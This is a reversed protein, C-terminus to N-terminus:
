PEARAAARDERGAVDGLLVVSAPMPGPKSPERTPQTDDHPQARGNRSLEGSASAGSRPEQPPDPRPDIPPQDGVHRRQQGYRAWAGPGRLKDLGLEEAWRTSPPRATATGHIKGKLYLEWGSPEVHTDGPVPLTAQTDLPEVLEVTALVLLEPAGREYRVSRFLTGLVPVSGLGPVGQSRAAVSRDILGAMAFTQGSRMRLTTAARRTLLSPIRFGEVEVAGIDSLDSVEPAVQLRITGDGLVVPLFNLEVGFERFEVTVTPGGLGGGQVVPIPFEGGALFSAKEGSLAVLTPEALTRIFQNDELAELFLQFDADPFGAFLTVADSVTTDALFNFPLNDGAPADGPVGIQVNNPNGGITQGGFFSDDAGFANVGMSRIAVRNAEAVRVKIMVQPLGAVRTMDVFRAETSEMFRTLAEADEARRLTGTVMLVDDAQAIEINADQLAANLRMELQEVDVEVQVRAQWRHDDEGWMTVDTSGVSEGLILVRDPKVVRVDAIEENSVVVESVMWGPEIIRSHGRPIVLTESPVPRAPEQAALSGNGGSAAAVVGLCLFPCVSPLRSIM